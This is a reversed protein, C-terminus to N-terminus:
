RKRRASRLVDGVQFLPRGPQALPRLRGRLVWMRITSPAVGVIAAAESGHVLAELDKSRLRVATRVPPGLPTRAAVADRAAEVQQLDYLSTRGARGVATLYGRSAWARITAPRVGCLRAADATSLPGPDSGWSDDDWFDAPVRRRQPRDAGPGAPADGAHSRFHSRAAAESEAPLLTAASPVPRGAGRLYELLASSTVGLDRALAHM